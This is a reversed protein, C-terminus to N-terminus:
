KKVRKRGADLTKIKNNFYTSLEDFYAGPNTKNRAKHLKINEDKISINFMNAWLKIAMSQTLNGNSISISESEHLATILVILDTDSRNWILKPKQEKIEIRPEPDYDKKANEFLHLQDGNFQPKIAKKLSKIKRRIFEEICYILERVSLIFYNLKKRLGVEIETWDKGLVECKVNLLILDLNEPLYLRRIEHIYNINETLEDIVHSTKNNEQIFNLVEMKIVDFLLISKARFEGITAYSNIKIGPDFQNEFNNIQPQSTNNIEVKLSSVEEIISEFAALM